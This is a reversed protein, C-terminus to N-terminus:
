KELLCLLVRSFEVHTFGFYTFYMVGSRLFEVELAM